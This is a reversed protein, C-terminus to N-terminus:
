DWILLLTLSFFNQQLSPYNQYRLVSVFFVDQYEINTGDGVISLFQPEFFSAVKTVIVPASVQWHRKFMLSYM